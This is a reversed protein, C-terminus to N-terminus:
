LANSRRIKSRVLEDLKRTIALLDKVEVDTPAMAATYEVANRRDHAASLATWLESPAGVTHPLAQFVISRHGRSSDARYGAMRLAATSLSFAADYALSFRSSPALAKNGADTLFSAARKLLTDLEDASSAELKLQKAAVLNELGIAM